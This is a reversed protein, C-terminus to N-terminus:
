VKRRLKYSATDFYVSVQTESKEGKRPAGLLPTNKLRPLSAPPLALKLEVEKPTTM